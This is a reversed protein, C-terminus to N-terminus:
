AERSQLIERLEEVFKDVQAKDYRYDDPQTQIISDLRRMSEELDDNILIYDYCPVDEAEVLAQSLRENIVEQKETGRGSLRRVLEAATPPMVFVMVAEPILKKIQKAGQVEIELLVDKGEKRRRSVFLAPTGYYHNVYGAYELLEHNRIAEEFEENTTFFYDAGHVEGDRPQRTTMSVSLVYNDHAETLAKMLTGKGSGSFGSIIVLKGMRNQENHVAM